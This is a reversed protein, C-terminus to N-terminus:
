RPLVRAVSSGDANKRDLYYSLLAVRDWGGPHSLGEQLILEAGDRQLIYRAGALIAAKTYGANLMIEAARQDVVVEHKQHYTLQNRLHLEAESAQEQEMAYVSRHGAHGIEHAMLYALAPEYGFLEQYAKRSVWIVKSDACTMANIYEPGTTERIIDVSYLAPDLGAAPALEGVLYQLYRRGTHPVAVFGDYLNCGYAATEVSTVPSYAATVPPPHDAGLCTFLLCPLVITSIRILSFM